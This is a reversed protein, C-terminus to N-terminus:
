GAHRVRRGRSSRRVWHCAISGYELRGPLVGAKSALLWYPLGYLVAIMAAVALSAARSLPGSDVLAEACVIPAAVGLALAAPTRVAVGYLRGPLAFARHFRAMFMATGGAIAGFTGALVGWLGFLPALAVTLALNLGAVWAANRAVVGPRGGALSLTMAVGSSVNIFNAATLVFLVALTDKPVHGLWAKFLFPATVSAMVCIPFAVAVSRTTYRRYYHSIIEHGRRVIDATATPIMASVSLVGVAKIANVVRVAIEYAGAAPVSVLLAIVVKDTQNNVQDGIWVVQSKLSFGLIQRARTRSPLAVGGPRWVLRFAVITPLLAVVAAAANAVAYVVLERSVALAIASAVFNAVVGINGAVAPPVMRRLGVPVSNLVGRLVQVVLITWASLMVIRTDHDGLQHLGAALLPALLLTVILSLVAVVAAMVLGLGLCEEISKHEGRGDYYAVFRALSSTVGLDVVQSYNVVACTVAWVGFMTIGLRSLIFPTLVFSLVSSLLYSSSQALTNRFLV